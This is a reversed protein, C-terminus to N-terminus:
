DTLLSRGLTEVASAYKKKRSRLIARYIPYNACAMAIGVCGVAIGLAFPGGIVEMALCMGVGLVLAAIVGFAWAFALAPRRVKRDLRRLKEAGSEERPAYSRLIREAYQKQAERETIM